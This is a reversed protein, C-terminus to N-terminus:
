AELLIKEVIVEDAYRKAAYPDKFAKHKVFRGPPLKIRKRSVVTYLRKTKRSFTMVAVEYRLAQKLVRHQREVFDLNKLNRM